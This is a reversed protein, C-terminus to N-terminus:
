YLPTISYYVYWSSPPLVMYNWQLYTSSNISFMSAYMDGQSSLVTQLSTNNIGYTTVIACYRSGGASSSMGVLYVGNRGVLSFFSVSQIAAGNGSASFAYNGVLPARLDGTGLVILPSSSAGSDASSFQPLTSMRVSGAVQLATSPNTIGIGVNGNETIRMSEAAGTSGTSVGFALAGADDYGNTADSLCRIFASAHPRNYGSFCLQGVIQGATNSGSTVQSINLGFNSVNNATNTSVSNGRVDLPTSPATTGIGVNGGHTQLCIPQYMGNGAANLYGIGLAQDMGISMAYRTTGVKGNSINLQGANTIYDPPQTSDATTNYIQLTTLPNTTGIGVPGVITESGQNTLSTAM